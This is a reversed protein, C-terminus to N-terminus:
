KKKKESTKIKSGTKQRSKPKKAAAAAKRQARTPIRELRPKLQSDFIKDIPEMLKKRQNNLASQKKSKNKDKSTRLAQLQKDIRAFHSARSKLYRQAQKKCDALIGHAKQQQEDNLQYKKIFDAVYKDWKSEYGKGGRSRGRHSGRSLRSAQGSTGRRAHRPRAATSSGSRSEGEPPPPVENPPTPRKHAQPKTGPGPPPIARGPSQATSRAQRKARNRNARRRASRRPSRFEEVTMQGSIIRQLQDETTRFSEEMLKLDEDHIKRQEPTLIERWEDNGAIILKKADEYLPKAEKGWEILEEQTMEGGTRVDFMRDVIHRLEDEHKDIFEYAKERLLAKTYEDQEETLNYKRGLFKSYNDILLDVNDIIADFGATRSQRQEQKEQATAAMVPLVLVCVVASRRMWRTFPYM